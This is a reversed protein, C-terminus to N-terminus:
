KTKKGPCETEEREIKRLARRLVTESHYALRGIIIPAPLFGTRERARVWSYTAGRGIERAFEGRTYFFTFEGDRKKPILFM